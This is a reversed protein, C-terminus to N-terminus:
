PGTGHGERQMKGVYKEGCEDCIVATFQTSHMHDDFKRSGYSFVFRVEGGGHPQNTDWKGTVPEMRKSCFLCPRPLYDGPLEPSDGELESLRRKLSKIVRGAETAWPHVKGARICYDEIPERGQTAQEDSM